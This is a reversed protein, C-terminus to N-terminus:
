NFNSKKTSNKCGTFLLLSQLYKITEEVFSPSSFVNYLWVWFFSVKSFSPSWHIRSPSRHLIDQGRRVSPGCKRGVAALAKVGVGLCSSQKLTQQRGQSDASPVWERPSCFVARLFSCSAKGSWGKTSVRNSFTNTFHNLPQYCFHTIHVCHSLIHALM